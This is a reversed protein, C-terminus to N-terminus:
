RRIRSLRPAGDAGKAAEIRNQVILAVVGLTVAPIANIIPILEAVVSAGTILMKRAMNKQFYNEGVLAFAILFITWAIVTVLWSFLAGLVTLTLLFQIGDFLLALGILLGATVNGIPKTPTM